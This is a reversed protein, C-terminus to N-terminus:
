PRPRTGFAVGLLRRIGALKRQVRRLVAISEEDSMGTTVSWDLGSGIANSAFVIETALLVRLWDTASLPSGSTIAEILREASNFLDRVSTFGIAVAM